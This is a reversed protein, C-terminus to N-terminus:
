HPQSSYSVEKRLYQHLLFNIHAMTNETEGLFNDKSTYYLLPLKGLLCDVLKVRYIGTQRTFEHQINSELADSRQMEGGFGFNATRVTQKYKLACM